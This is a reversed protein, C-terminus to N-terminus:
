AIFRAKVICWDKKKGCKASYNRIFDLDSNDLLTSDFGPKLLLHVLFFLM